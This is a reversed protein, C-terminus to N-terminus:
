EVMLMLVLHQITIDQVMHVQQLVETVKRMVVLLLVVLLKGKHSIVFNIRKSVCPEPEPKKVTFECRSRVSVSRSMPPRSQMKESKIKATQIRQAISAYSTSSKARM